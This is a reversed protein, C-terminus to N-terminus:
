QHTQYYLESKLLIEDNLAIFAIISGFIYKKKQFRDLPTFMEQKMDHFLPISVIVTYVADSTFDKSFM